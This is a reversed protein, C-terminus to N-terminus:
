LNDERIREVGSFSFLRFIPMMYCSGTKVQKMQDESERRIKLDKKLKEVEHTKARVENELDAYKNGGGGQSTRRGRDRDGAIQTPGTKGKLGPNDSRADGQKSYM